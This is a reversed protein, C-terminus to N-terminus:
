NTIGVYFNRLLITTSHKKACRHHANSIRYWADKLSEGGLQKFTQVEVEPSSVFYSSGSMILLGFYVLHLFKIKQPKQNKVALLVFSFCSLFCLLSIPVSLSGKGIAELDGAVAGSFLKIAVHQHVGLPLNHHLCCFSRFLM